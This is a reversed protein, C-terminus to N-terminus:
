NVSNTQAWLLLEGVRKKDLALCKKTLATEETSMKRRAM